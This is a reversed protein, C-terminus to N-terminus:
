DHDIYHSIYDHSMYNHSIYNHGTYDHSLTIACPFLANM